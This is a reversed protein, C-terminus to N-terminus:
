LRWIESGTSVNAITFECIRLRAHCARQPLADDGDMRLSTSLFATLLYRTRSFKINLKNKANADRRISNPTLQYSEKFLANFRRVSGFGAAFAVESMAMNTEQILKKAFLLRQTQAIETPGVGFEQLLVRRVQRSSLGIQKSLNELSQENLDGAAIKQWIAHALNQQLAYPALEPRCRLCPRFGAAEASAASTYFTCSSPKPTKVSCIPRCYIGTTKVGTFFIGDFRADKSALARYCDEDAMLANSSHTLNLPHTQMTVKYASLALNM